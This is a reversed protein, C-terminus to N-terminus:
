DLQGLPQTPPHSPPYALYYLGETARDQLSLSALIEALSLNGSLALPVILNKILETLFIRNSYLINM